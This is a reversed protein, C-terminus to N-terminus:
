EIVSVLNKACETASFNRSFLRPNQFVYRQSSITNKAASSQSAALVIWKM